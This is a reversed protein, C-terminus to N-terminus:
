ECSPALAIAALAVRLCPLSLSLFKEKRGDFSSFPSFLHKGEGYSPRVCAVFFHRKKDKKGGEEEEEEIRIM